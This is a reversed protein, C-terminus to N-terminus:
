QTEVSKKASFQRVRPRQDHFFVLGAILAQHTCAGLGARQRVLGRDFDMLEQLHDGGVEQVSITLSNVAVVCLAGLMLEFIFFWPLVGM